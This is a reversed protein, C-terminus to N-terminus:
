ILAPDTLFPEARHVEKHGVALVFMRVRGLHVFTLVALLRENRLRGSHRVESRVQRGVALEIVTGQPDLDAFFAHLCELRVFQELVMNLLGMGVIGFLFSQVANGTALLKAPNRNEPVMNKPEMQVFHGVFAFVAFDAVIEGRLQDVM